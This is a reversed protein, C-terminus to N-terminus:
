SFMEDYGSGGPPPFEDGWGGQRGGRGGGSGGGRGGGFGGRAGGGGGASPGIPDFRAGPPVAGPPLFGDGGWRGGGVGGTGGGRQPGFHDGFIPHGPGVFMGSGAPGNGGFPNSGGLGTTGGLGGLPLLDSRGVDGFPNGRGGSGPIRLPDHDPTAEPPPRPRSGGATPDILPGGPDPYYPGRPNALPRDAGAATTPGSGENSPLEEYGSKSLGPVLRQIINIRYNNIFEQLRHPIAFSDALVKKGSSAEAAGTPLSLPFALQSVYDALLVDYSISKNDQTPLRAIILEVAVGAILARGGMEVLSIVFEMSSQQHRYKFQISTNTASGEWGQPLQNVDAAAPSADDGAKSNSNSNSSTPKPEVLRFELASHISHVLIALAHLPKSLTTSTKANSSAGDATAGTTTSTPSLTSGDSAAATAGEPAAGTTTAQVNSSSPLLKLALTVLNDPQLGQM